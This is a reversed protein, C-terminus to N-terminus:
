AYSHLGPLLLNVGFYTWLMVVFGVVSLWATALERNKAVPRVHIVILYIIWTALAWTEKPDFAWWRGWSHDAWWAGLLIGVGLTWFALQLVTMTARDLDRLVGMVPRRAPADGARPADGQAGPDRGPNSAFSEHTDGAGARTRLRRAYYGVLFFLSLVFGLTILGYSTLVTTVHYKLLVSTNLIAAERGISKGPIAAETATVLVLFGMAGAAAGYLVNRRAIMLGGALLAGFLSVGIMSEFQNQIAWREAILCRFVFGLAHLGIATSLVGVGAIRLGRRGTTLSLLLLVTALLYLWYGWTFTDARNYALELGRRGAPYMAGNITPLIEALGAIAANARAADLARWADGLADALAWVEGARPYGEERIYHWVDSKSEPAVLLMSEGAVDLRQVARRIDNIGDLFPGAMAHERELMPLHRISALTTVRTLKLERDRLAKVRGAEDESAGGPLPIEREIIKERLPLYAVHVLPQDAYWAPDIAMDLLTFLPDFSVEEVVEGREGRIFTEFRDRATLATVSERALTDLIKVRGGHFVGLSRLPELDLARAFDHKQRVSPGGESASTGPVVPGFAPAIAGAVIAGQDPHANGVPAGQGRAQAALLTLITLTRLISAITM